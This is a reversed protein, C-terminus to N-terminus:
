YAHALNKWWECVHSHDNINLSYSHITSSYNLVCQMIMAFPKAPLQSTSKFSMRCDCPVPIQYLILINLSSFLDILQARPSFKSSFDLIWVLTQTILCLNIIFHKIEHFLVSCSGYRTYCVFTSFNTLTSKYIFNLM